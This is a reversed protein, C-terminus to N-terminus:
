KVLRDDVRIQPHIEDAPDSPKFDVVIWRVGTVDEVFENICDVGDRGATFPILRKGVRVRISQSLSPTKSM